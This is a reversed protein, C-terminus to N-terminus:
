ISVDPSSCDAFHLYTKNSIIMRNDFLQQYNKAVHKLSILKSLILALCKVCKFFIKVINSDNKMDLLMCYILNLMYTLVYKTYINTKKLYM